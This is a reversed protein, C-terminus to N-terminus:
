AHSVRKWSPEHGNQSLRARNNKQDKNQALIAFAVAPPIREGTKFLVDRRPEGDAHPTDAQPRVTAERIRVYYQFLPDSQETAQPTASPASLQQKSKRRSLGRRSVELWCDRVIGVLRYARLQRSSRVAEFSSCSLHKTTHLPPRVCSASV